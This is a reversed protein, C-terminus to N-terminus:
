AQILTKWTDLTTKVVSVNVVQAELRLSLRLYVDRQILRVSKTIISLAKVTKSKIVADLEQM